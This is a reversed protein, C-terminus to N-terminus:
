KSEVALILNQVSYTLNFYCKLNLDLISISQKTSQENKRDICARENHFNLVIIM